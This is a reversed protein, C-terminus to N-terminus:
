DLPPSWGEPPGDPFQAMGKRLRDAFSDFHARPWGEPSFSGGFRTVKLGKLPAPVEMPAGFMAAIEEVRAEAAAVEGKMWLAATLYPTIRGPGNNDRLEYIIEDLSTRKQIWPLGVERVADTVARFVGENGDLAESTVLWRKDQWAKPGDLLKVLPYRITASPYPTNGGEGALAHALSNVRENIVGVFPKLYWQYPLGREPALCLLGVACPAVPRTYFSGARKCWGDAVLLPKAKPTPNAM